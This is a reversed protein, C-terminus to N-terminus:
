RSRIGVFIDLDGPIRENTAVEIQKVQEPTLLYEGGSQAKLSQWKLINIVALEFESDVVLEYKLSDDEPDGPLFGTIHLFM